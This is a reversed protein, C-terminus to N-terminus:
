IKIKTEKRNSFYCLSSVESVYVSLHTLLYTSLILFLHIHSIINIAELAGMAPSCCPPSVSIAKHLLPWICPTSGESELWSWGLSTLQEGCHGELVRSGLERKGAKCGILEAGQGQPLLTKLM